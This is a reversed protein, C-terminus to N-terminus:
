PFPDGERHLLAVLRSSVYEFGPESIGWDPETDFMEEAEGKPVYRDYTM